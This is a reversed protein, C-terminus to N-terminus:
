REEKAEDRPPWPIGRKDRLPRVGDPDQKLRGKAAGKSVIFRAGAPETAVSICSTTEDGFEIYGALWTGSRDDLVLVPEGRRERADESMTTM